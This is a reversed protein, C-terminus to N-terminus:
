INPTTRFLDLVADVLLVYAQWAQLARVKVRLWKEVKFAEAACRECITTM